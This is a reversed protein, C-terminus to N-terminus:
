DIIYELELEYVDGSAGSTIVSASLEIDVEESFRKNFGALQAGIDMVDDLASSVNMAAALGNDDAAEGGEDSAAWGLNLTGSTCAPAIFRCSKIVANSPLKCFKVQDTTAIEAGLTISAYIRRIRGNYKDPNLNSKPEDIYAGQYEDSYFIAM